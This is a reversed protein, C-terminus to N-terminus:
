RCLTRPIESPTAPRITADFAAAASQEPKTPPARESRIPGRATSLPASTTMAVPNARKGSISAGHCANTNFMRTPAPLPENQGLWDVSSLESVGCARRCLAKACCRIVMFRPMASPPSTAPAIARVSRGPVNM